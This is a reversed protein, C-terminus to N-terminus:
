LDLDVYAARHDSLPLRPAGADTVAALEGLGLVHDLQVKPEGLPFTKERVLPTWRALLRPLPGPINLDGTLLQPMPLDRLGAVLRRLQVTSWGPVFSLHTTAVTMPGRPADIVAAVAVRPEDKVLVLRKDHTRIPSRVKLAPLRIVRWERVPHRSLLAIGYAPEGEAVDDGAPAWGEGPTGAIAPVFRHAVAGMVEAAVATQDIGHSRAQDRDVEQLGLIDPNLLRVSQRLREEDVVGDTVTRGHLLNFTAVRV